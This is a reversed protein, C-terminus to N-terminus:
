ELNSCDFGNLRMLPRRQLHTRKSKITRGRVVEREVVAGTLFDRSWSGSTKDDYAGWRSERGMAELDGRRKNFRFRLTEGAFQSADAKHM